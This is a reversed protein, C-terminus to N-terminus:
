ILVSSHLLTSVRPARRRLSTFVGTKYPLLITLVQWVKPCGTAGTNPTNVSDTLLTFAERIGIFCARKLLHFTCRREPVRGLTFIPHVCRREKLDASSQIHECTSIPFIPNAAHDWFAWRENILAGSVQTICVFKITESKPAPPLIFNVRSSVEADWIGCFLPSRPGGLVSCCSEFIELLIDSKM